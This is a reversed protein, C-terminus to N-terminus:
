KTILEIIYDTGEPAKDFILTIGQKSKKYKVPQKGDYTFAKKVKCQLPLFLETEKCDFIHIFLRNGKRTTVGWDQVPIDGATTEYITEGYKSTWKGMEKLREIAAAPLEGNPQPGVNLLLNAGKGATSVLYRILTESSKYNQDIIKYGWMGNMTQCTELPLRSIDQGSLGAKNEGPLDREFIQIDEGEHPAIHHNNGVLCAPQLKHILAYQQPLQWDFPISDQDHDWHGDFWIAGIEGYNTLLETLQRNMFSYYAPWNEKSKDRGTVTTATRGLPYDERTWDIHSYYLHLKIGQRHCEDALEKIVDRGFPTADVINYESQETDWLSFGDHHRSTFCIYKAGAEKIASVWEKADFRHPYFADASKAYEDVNLGANQLYWEGQAFMSYLGWHLFIGFKSDAFEQRAKLNEVTPTYINEQAVISHAFLLSTLAFSLIRKKM